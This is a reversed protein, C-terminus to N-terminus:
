SGTQEKIFTGERYERFAQRLEEDTNMVIPGGWAVPEDLPKGAVLLFRAGEDGGWLSVADHGAHRVAHRLADGGEFIVLQREPVERDDVPGFNVSGRFVYAFVNHAAPIMQSLAAGPQLTVDLYLPETGIEQVPGAVGGAEGCVVLAQAGDALAVRPLDAAVISQYRPSRMKQDRPLNSWLQFGELHVSRLPMEQHVIGSGATMWQVDGPGIEGENGLSDSHAVRGDIMYTITEMGRHPHWPFGAMYDEPQDSGFHDLLLYPDLRADVDGFARRLRVGAGEQTQRSPVIESVSRIRTM